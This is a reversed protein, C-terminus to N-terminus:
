RKGRKQAEAMQVAMIITAGLTLAFGVLGLLMNM